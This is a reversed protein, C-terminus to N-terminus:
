FIGGQSNIYSIVHSILGNEKRNRRIPDTFQYTIMVYEHFKDVLVSQESIIKKPNIQFFKM